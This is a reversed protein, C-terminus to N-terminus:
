RGQQRCFPGRCIFGQFVKSQHVRACSSSFRLVESVRRDRRHRRLVYLYIYGIFVDCSTPRYRSTIQVSNLPPVDYLLLCVAGCFQVFHNPGRRCLPLVRSVDGLECSSLGVFVDGWRGCDVGKASPVSRPLLPHRSAGPSFLRVDSTVFRFSAHGTKASSRCQSSAFRTRVFLGDNGEACGRVM